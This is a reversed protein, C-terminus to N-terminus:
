LIVQESSRLLESTNRKLRRNIVIFSIFYMLCILVIAIPYVWWAVLFPLAFHIVNYSFKNALFLTLWGLFAGAGTALLIWPTFVNITNWIVESRRYGETKLLVMFREYQQMFLNSVLLILLTTCFIVVVLIVSAISLMITTLRNIFANKASLLNQSTILPDTNGVVAATTRFGFRISNSSAYMTTLNYPENALSYNANSWMQPANKINFIFGNKAGQNILIKSVDNNLYNTNAGTTPDFLVKNLQYGYNQHTSYGGIFNILADNTYATAQGYTNNTGIFDYHIKLGPLTTFNQPTNNTTIFRLVKHYSSNIAGQMWPLFKSLFNSISSSKSLFRNDYALNYPHVLLWQGSGQNGYANKVSQPVDTAGVTQVIESLHASHQQQPDLYLNKDISNTGFLPLYLEMQNTSYKPRLWPQVQNNANIYSGVFGAHVTDKMDPNLTFNSNVLNFPNIDYRDQALNSSIYTAKKYATWNPIQQTQAQKAYNNDNYVWFGKPLTVWQQKSNLYQLTPVAPRMNDNNIQPQKYGLQSAAQQNLVTPINLTNTVPNYLKYGNAITIAQPKTITTPRFSPNQYRYYNAIQTLQTQLRNTLTLSLIKQEAPTLSIIPNAPNIGVLSLNNNGFHTTAISTQVDQNIVNTSYNWGFNFQNQRSASRNVYQQLYVPLYANLLTSIQKPWTLNDLGQPAKINLAQELIPALGTKFDQNLATLLQQRTQQNIGRQKYDASHYIMDIMNVVEGAAFAHGNTAYFNNGMINAFSSFIASANDLGILNQSLWIPQQPNPAKPNYAFLPLPSITSSASIYTAPDLYGPSTPTPGGNFNFNTKAKYKQELAQPSPMFQMGNNSLPANPTSTIYNFSNRYKLGDYFSTSINKLFGPLAISLTVLFASILVILSMVGIRGMSNATISLKLQHTFRVKKFLKHKILLILRNNRWGIGPQLIEVVNKRIILYSSLISIFLSFFGFIFFAIVFPRWDFVIQLYNLSFFNQFTEALPWQFLIGLFYGLPVAFLVIFVSYIAYMFCLKFNSVGLAKLLAIQTANLKINKSVVNYCGVLAILFLVGAVVYFVIALVRIALPLLTWNFHYNSKNFPRIQWASFSNPGTISTKGNQTFNVAQAVNGDIKNMLFASFLLTKQKNSAQQQGLVPPSLNSNLTLFAHQQSQAANSGSTNVNLQNYINHNIYVIASSKGNPIPSNPTAAPIFSYPDTALGSIQLTLQKIQILSGISLHNARAFQPSVLVQNDGFPKVGKIIHIDTKYFNYNNNSNNNVVFRFIKQNIADFLYAEMRFAIPKFGSAVAAMNQHFMFNTENTTAQSNDGSVGGEFNDFPAKFVLPSLTLGAIKLDKQDFTAQPTPNYLPNFMGRMGTNAFGGNVSHIPAQAITTLVNNANANQLKLAYVATDSIVVKQSRVPGVFHFATFDGDNALTTGTIYQYIVAALRDITPTTPPISSIPLATLGATATGNGTLGGTYNTLAPDFNAIVLKNIDTEIKTYAEAKTTTQSRESEPQSNFEQIATNVYFSFFNNVSQDIATAFDNWIYQLYEYVPNPQNNIKVAFFNDPRQKALFYSGLLTKQLTKQSLNNFNNITFQSLFNNKLSAISFIPKYGSIIFTKTSYNLDNTGLLSKAIKSSDATFINKFAIKNDFVDFPLKNNIKPLDEGDAQQQSTYQNGFILNYSSNDNTATYGPTVDMFSAFDPFVKSTQAGKGVHYDYENNFPKLSNVYQNFDNQFRQTTSMGTTILLTALLSLVIIIFLQFKFKFVIRLGQKLFLLISSTSKNLHHELEIQHTFKQNSKSSKM